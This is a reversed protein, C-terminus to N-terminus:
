QKLGFVPVSRTESHLIEITFGVLHV